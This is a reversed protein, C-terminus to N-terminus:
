AMYTGEVSRDGAESTRIVGEPTVFATRRSARSSPSGEVARTLAGLVGQVTGRRDWVGICGATDRITTPAPGGVGRSQSVLEATSVEPAYSCAAMSSNVAAAREHNIRLQGHGPHGSGVPATTPTLCAWPTPQHPRLWKQLMAESALGCPNQSVSQGTEPM